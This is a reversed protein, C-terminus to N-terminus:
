SRRRAGIQRTFKISQLRLGRLFYVSLPMVGVHDFGLVGGVHPVLSLGVLYVDNQRELSRDIRRLRLNCKVVFM